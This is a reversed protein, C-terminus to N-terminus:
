LQIISVQRSAQHRRFSACTEGTSLSHIFSLSKLRWNLIIYYIIIYKINNYKILTYKAEGCLNAYISFLLGSCVRAVKSSVAKLILSSMTLLRCAVWPDTKISADALFRRSFWMCIMVFITLCSLM